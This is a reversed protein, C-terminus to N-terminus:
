RTVARPVSYGSLLTVDCRNEGPRLGSVAKWRYLFLLIVPSNWESIVPRDSLSHKSSHKLCVLQQRFMSGQDALSKALAM